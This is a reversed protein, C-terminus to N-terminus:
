VFGLVEINANPDGPVSVRLIEFDLEDISYYGFEEATSEGVIQVGKVRIEKSSM